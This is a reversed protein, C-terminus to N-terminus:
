GLYRVIGEVHIRVVAQRGEESLLYDVDDPNDMFFNETLVAPCRTDRCIALNGTWYTTEPQPTRVTVPIGGAVGALCTALDKSRDSANASVYVSWGRAKMWDTGMGAANCHISVLIVDGGHQECLVNV